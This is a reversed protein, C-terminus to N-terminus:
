STSFIMTMDLWCNLTCQKRTTAHHQRSQSTRRMIYCSRCKDSAAGLRTSLVNTQFGPSYFHPSTREGMTYIQDCGKIEAEEDKFCLNLQTLDSTNQSCVKEKFFFDLTTKHMAAIFTSNSKYLDEGGKGEHAGGYGQYGRLFSLPCPGQYVCNPIWQFLNYKPGRQNQLELIQFYPCQAICIICGTRPQHCTGGIRVLPCRSPSSHAHCKPDHNRIKSGLVVVQGFPIVMSCALESRQALERVELKPCIDKQSQTKHSEYYSDNGLGNTPLCLVGQVKLM